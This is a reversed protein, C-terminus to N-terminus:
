KWDKLGMVDRRWEAPSRDYEDAYGCHPCGNGHYVDFLEVGEDCAPCDGFDSADPIGAGPDGLGAHQYDDGNKARRRAADFEDRREQAPDSGVFM